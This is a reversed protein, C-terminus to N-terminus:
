KKLIRDREKYDPLVSAILAYFDSGHNRHVIHALEHVVVYEVAEIPYQMLRFSFCLRNQASCSGFRRGAKTIKIGEPKLGMIAAYREVLPPIEMKARATLKSVEEETLPVRSEARLRQKEMHSDIWGRKREAFSHIYATPCRRPARIILKAEGTIELSLTKRDSRVIEYDYTM